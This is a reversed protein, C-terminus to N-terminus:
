VNFLYIKDKQDVNPMIDLHVWTIPLGTKTNIHELRIKYPLIDENEQIWMRVKEAEVGKVDFDVAKGFCHASLYLKTHITRNKVISSTNERLGRQSFRGGSHWNNIKMQLGLTRRIIYITELLRYDIFKWTKEGYRDYVTKSVFEEIKFFQKIDYIAKGNM